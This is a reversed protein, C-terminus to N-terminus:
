TVQDTQRVLSTTGETGAELIGIWTEELFIM